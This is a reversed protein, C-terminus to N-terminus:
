LRIGGRMPGSINVSKTRGAARKFKRASRGKSVGHRRLPRMYDGRLFAPPFEGATSSRADRAFIDKAWFLVM